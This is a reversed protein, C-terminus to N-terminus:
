QRILQRYTLSHGKLPMFLEPTSHIPCKPDIRIPKNGMTNSFSVFREEYQAFSFQQGWFRRMISNCYDMVCAAGKLQAVIGHRLDKTRKLEIFVVHRKGNDEALLIYDARKREERSNSFLLAPEPFCDAKFILTKQPLRSIEVSSITEKCLLEKTVPNYTLKEETLTAARYLRGNDNDKFTYIAVPNLLLEKFASFSLDSMKIRDGM